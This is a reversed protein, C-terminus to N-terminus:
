GEQVEKSLQLGYDLLVKKVNSKHFNMSNGNPEILVKTFRFM